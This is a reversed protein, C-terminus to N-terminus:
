KFLKIKLTGKAVRQNQEKEFQFNFEIVNVSDHVDRVESKFTLSDNLYVPKSFMIEQSLIMVNKKKNHDVLSGFWIGLAAALVLYIGSVISTATVSKTELYIFFVMAYWVTMNTANILVTNALIQYFTKM